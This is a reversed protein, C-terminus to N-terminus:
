SSEEVLFSRITEIGRRYRSAVTPLPRRSIAGIERFTMGVVEKLFIVERVESPLHALCQELFRREEVPSVKEPLPVLPAQEYKQCARRWDITANRVARMVYPLLDRPLSRRGLVGAIATQVADEAADHDHTLVLAYSFLERRYQRYFREVTAPLEDYKM